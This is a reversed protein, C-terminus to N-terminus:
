SLLGEAPRFSATRQLPDLLWNDQSDRVSGPRSRGLGIRILTRAVSFHITATPTLEAREGSTPISSRAPKRRLGSLLGRARGCRARVCLRRARHWHPRLLMGGTCELISRWNVVLNGRRGCSQMFRACRNSRGGRVRGGRGMRRLAWRSSATRWGGRRCRRGGM